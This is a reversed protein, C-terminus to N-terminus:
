RPRLCNPAGCRGDPHGVGQATIIHAGFRTLALLEDTIDDRITRAYEVADTTPWRHGDLVEVYAAATSHFRQATWWGCTTARLDHSGDIEVPLGDGALLDTGSYRWRAVPQLQGPVLINIALSRSLWLVHAGDRRIPGTIAATLDRYRRPTDRSDYLVTM